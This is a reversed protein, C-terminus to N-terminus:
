AFKELSFFREHGSWDCEVFSKYSGFLQKVAMGQGAGIEFWARGGGKLHTPLERAFREYLELGSDGSVLAEMPEHARVEPELGEYDGTAVYPPNSVVYDAQRGSFPAFLDGELFEVEVGNRKANERALALAESSIDSAVVELSPFKKKLAIAICGSGCCIDWLVKGDPEIAEAVKEVLQETEPRPILVAPTVRLSCNYFEVEGLLYQIPERKGRRELLERCRALEERSIPKEFHLYLDLRKLGLAGGIVEEAARRANPVGREALYDASLTLLDLVSKM